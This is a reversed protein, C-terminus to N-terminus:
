PSLSVADRRGCFVGRSTEGDNEINVGRSVFGKLQLLSANDLVLNNIAAIVGDMDVEESGNLTFMGARESSPVIDLHAGGGAGVEIGRMERKECYVLLMPAGDERNVLNEIQPNVKRAYAAVHKVLDRHNTEEIFGVAIKAEARAFLTNAGRQLIKEGWADVGGDDLANSVNSAGLALAGALFVKVVSCGNGAM